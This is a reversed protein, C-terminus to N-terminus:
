ISVPLEYTTPYFDFAQAENKGQERETQKRLRKLNKVMLNKRTLQCVSCFNHVIIAVSISSRVHTSVYKNFKNFSNSFFILHSAKGLM